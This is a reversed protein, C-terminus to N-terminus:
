QLASLTAQIFIWSFPAAPTSPARGKPRKTSAQAPCLSRRCPQVHVSLSPILSPIPSVQPVGGGGLKPAGTPFPSSRCPARRAAAAPCPTTQPSPRGHVPLVFIRWKGCCLARRPGPPYRRHMTRNQRCPQPAFVLEAPVEHPVVDMLLLLAHRALGARQPRQGAALFRLIPLVSLAAEPKPHLLPLRTSFELPAGHM